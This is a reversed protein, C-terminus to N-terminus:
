IQDGHHFKEKKLIKALLRHQRLNITIEDGIQVTEIDRLIREEKQIIAYGKQMLKLPSLNDLKVMTLALRASKDKYINNISNQLEAAFKDVLNIKNKLISDPQQWIRQMMVRDLSEARILLDRQVMQTLRQRHQLVTELLAANDPVAMQAAQTPTAARADAAFDILTTDVEHGVGSIVPIKSHYVAEVVIASNFAMLDEFSGGGRAVIMVDIDDLQNLRNIAAAIEGPAGTGQVATHAIVIDLNKARHRLVKLIDRLAAGDQSSVVGLKRVIPPLAKKHERDFYGQAQLEEKLQELQWYLDGVGYLQMEQVYFQYKGQRAFVAVTGRALVEAGDQPSFRLKQVRSKFMVSSIVADRDKLNFYMHGSQQYVKCGSVEGKLWCDALTFDNELLGSIYENLQSVTFYEKM